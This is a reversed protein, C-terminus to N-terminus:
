LNSSVCHYDHKKLINSVMAQSIQYKKAIEYGKLGNNHDTVVSDLGLASLKKPRGMKVGRSGAEQMGATVRESILDHEFEAFSGLLNIMMRGISTSLDLSETISVLGVGKNNLIDLIRVLDRMSRALRDLKWIVVKDGAQCQDIMKHLNVREFKTGSVKDMFIQDVGYENLKTVQLDEHQQETSVRVYGFIKM